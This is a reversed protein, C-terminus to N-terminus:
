LGVAVDVVSFICTQVFEEVYANYMLILISHSNNDSGGASLTLVVHLWREVPASHQWLKV